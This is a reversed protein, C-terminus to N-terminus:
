KKWNSGARFIVEGNGNFLEEGCALLRAAGV